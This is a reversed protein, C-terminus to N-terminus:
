RGAIAAEAQAGQEVLQVLQRCVEQLHGQLWRVAEDAEGQGAHELLRVHSLEHSHGVVRQRLWYRGVDSRLREIMSVLLTNNQEDYLERYFNVRSKVFGEGPQEHDLRSALEQLRGLRDATMTEIAKRLAYSELLIRVEYIERVQDPTLISVVAGRHPRFQILGDAELQFLASRIPIRSIGLSEALSDQRLHQGPELVGALIAERLVSYAMDGVTTYHVQANALIQALGDPEAPTQTM